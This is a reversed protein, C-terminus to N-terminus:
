FTGTQTDNGTVKATTCQRRGSEFRLWEVLRRADGPPEKRM